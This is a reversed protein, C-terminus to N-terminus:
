VMKIIVCRAVPGSMLIGHRSDDAHISFIVTKHSKHFRLPLHIIQLRLRKPLKGYLESGGPCDIRKSIFCNFQPHGEGTRKKQIIQIKHAARSGINKIFHPRHISLRMLYRNIQINRGLCCDVFATLGYEESFVFVTNVAAAALLAHQGSGTIIQADVPAPEVQCCRIM